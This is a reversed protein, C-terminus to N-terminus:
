GGSASALTSQLPHTTISHALCRLPWRNAAARNPRQREYQYHFHVIKGSRTRVTLSERQMSLLTFEERVSSEDVLQLRGHRIRWYWLPAAVSSRSGLEVAVFGQRTCSYSEIRVPDHVYFHLGIVKERTWQLSPQGHVPLCGILFLVAALARKM